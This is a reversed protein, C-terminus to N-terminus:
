TGELIMSNQLYPLNSLGRSVGWDRHQRHHDRHSQCAWVRGRVLDNVVTMYKHGKRFAKEEVRRTDRGRRFPKAPLSNQGGAHRIGSV